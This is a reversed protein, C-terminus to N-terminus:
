DNEAAQDERFSKILPEARERDEEFIYLDLTAPNAGIYGLGSDNKILGKIGTEELLKLLLLATPESGTFVRVIKEEDEM